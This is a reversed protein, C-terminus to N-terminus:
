EGIIKTVDIISNESTTTSPPSLRYGHCVINEPEKITLNSYYIKELGNRLELYSLTISCETKSSTSNCDYDASKSLNTIHHYNKIFIGFSVVSSDLGGLYIPRESNVFLVKGKTSIKPKKAM